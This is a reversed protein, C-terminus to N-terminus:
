CENTGARGPLLVCVDVHILGSELSERILLVCVCLFEVEIRNSLLYSFYVKISKGRAWTSGFDPLAKAAHFAPQSKQM